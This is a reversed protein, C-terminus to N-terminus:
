DSTDFGGRNKVGGGRGERYEVSGLLEKKVAEIGNEYRNSLGELLFASVGGVQVKVGADRDRETDERGRVPAVSDGRFSLFDLYLTLNAEGVPCRAASPFLSFGAILLGGDLLAIAILLLVDAYFFFASGALTGGMAFRFLDADVLALGVDLLGRSTFASSVLVFPVDEANERRQSVKVAQRGISGVAGSWGQRDTSHSQKGDFKKKQDNAGSRVNMRCSRQAM